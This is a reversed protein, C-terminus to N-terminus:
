SQLVLHPLFLRLWDSISDQMTCSDSDQYSVLQGWKLSPRKICPFALILLWCDAGDDVAWVLKLGVDSLAREFLRWLSMAGSQGPLCSRWAWTPDVQYPTWASRPTQLRSHPSRWAKSKNCYGYEQRRYSSLDLGDVILYMIERVRIHACLVTCASQSVCLVLDSNWIFGPLSSNARHRANKLGGIM